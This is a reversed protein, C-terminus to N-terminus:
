RNTDARTPLSFLILLGIGLYRKSSHVCICCARNLMHLAITLSTWANDLITEDFLYHCKVPILLKPLYITDRRDEDLGQFSERCGLSMAVALRM